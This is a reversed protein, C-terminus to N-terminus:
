NFPISFSLNPKLFLKKGAFDFIVHFRQLLRNCIIGDAGEQRSRVEAKPFACPVDQITFSGITFSKVVGFQGYIDGSLGRGLYRDELQEPLSFKQDPKVLLELAESSASDIYLNVETRDGGRVSVIGNVFPINHQNFRMNVEIWGPEDDIDVKDLLTIVMQDYDIKVVSSGFLVNGVVGDSPFASMTDSQLIMLPQDPFDIDGFSLTMGEGRVVYSTEGQGAGRVEYRAANTLHLEDALDPKFLMAGQSPMGTDLIVRLIRSNNVRMPLIIKNREVEFPIKRAAVSIVCICALLLIETIKKM